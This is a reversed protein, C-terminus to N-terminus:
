ARGFRQELARGSLEVAQDHTCARRLPKLPGQSTNELKKLLVNHSLGCRLSAVPDGSRIVQRIGSDM